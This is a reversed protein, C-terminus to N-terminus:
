GAARVSDRKAVFPVRALLTTGRGPQSKISLEGRVLQLRERMSILGLGRRNIADQPDFGVGLDTVTLQISEPTGHLDVNFHRVGSHKAANQLSEQLVRFLCLSVEKPLSGPIGAHRFDIEVKQQESLEKCFSNAASAIGLYDLKSSHLRHSLAQIDRGLDFLRQRLHSMHNRVDVESGPFHQGWQELEVSLLAIRQNIDDHLERAIWTREEEHAEILKRGMNALAEEALKAETVDLCSGIYGVFSGDPNLRPVGIDLLWRYEGDHRRLRYQMKFSERLDFARTYTDQCGKLDEPHVGESWGNGLEAELPRGTFDLWPQNFYNCLKDPGSMWIMVPATNAVLSFRQESERIAAEAKRRETIDRLIVTFLKKGESEVHSVSAEIPFEQGNSRVAWLDGRPGMNLNTVGSQDFRRIHARHESRFRQPIFGDIPTGIAEDQSCGFMKVAASNFLVIRQEEDVAIIGDMASGVICALRDQSERLKQEAEKRETIDVAMGLMRAPDGNNTYFFQGRAAVWRVAGDTRVVRFEATYAKRDQRADAVAQEVSEWDEPYVTRQFDGALGSYTDADIGFITHLDGFWRNTGTKADWEWGVSKGAEVALRLRDSSIVLETEAERRRRRQWLLGVILLTELLILAIGGIIYGKYSEWVTPERNLIISGPPLLSEKIGWRKLARSDFMYTSVGKVTPIDQPKEGNLIRLAMGGAVKGQDGISSVYGGVEGHNLYVDFVSFIPANSAAAILPGAESSKFRTGAADQGVTAVLVVTRVPLHRLRELMDPMAMGTLYTIEVRDSFASLQRGIEAQEQKDYESVGSVVVVRKTDPQFRLATQVTEAPTMDNEVGTFDSELAPAGPSTLNPLCFVIPVGPFASQHVDRMFRLPSPGVTVIVDPRRNRYKRLYFDRFEQQTAPDPFLFTDMYESYFELQYPSNHLASQIAQDILIIAPYSNGAENLILIRRVEKAPAAALSLSLILAALVALPRWCRRVGSRRQGLRPSVPRRLHLFSAVIRHDLTTPM